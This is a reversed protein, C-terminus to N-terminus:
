PPVFVQSPTIDCPRSISRWTLSLVGLWTKTGGHSVAKVSCQKQGKGFLLMLHILFSFGLTKKIYVTFLSSFIM